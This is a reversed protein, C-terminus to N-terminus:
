LPDRASGGKPVDSYPSSSSYPPMAIKSLSCSAPRNSPTSATNPRSYPQRAPQLCMVGKQLGIAAPAGHVSQGARLDGAPSAHEEEARSFAGRAIAGQSGIEHGIISSASASTLPRGGVSVGRQIQRLMAEM